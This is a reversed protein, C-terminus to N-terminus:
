MGGVSNFSKGKELDEGINITQLNIKVIAMSVLTLHYSMTTKVQM